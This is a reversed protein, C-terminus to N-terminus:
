KSAGPRTAAAPPPGSSRSATSRSRVKPSCSGQSPPSSPQLSRKTGTSNTGPGSTLSSVLSRPPGDSGSSPSDQGSGRSEDSSHQEPTAPAEGRDKSAGAYEEAPKQQVDENADQQATAEEDILGYWDSEDEEDVITEGTAMGPANSVRANAVKLLKERKQSAMDRINRLATVGQLFAERDSIMAYAKLQTMHYAEREGEARPATVHHAFIKLTGDHYTCSFSYANGDYVPEDKGYNQLSHMARAGHAGDICAQRRGVDIGGSPAKAELFFNPAIPACFHGTPIIRNKLDERVKKHIHSVFSGDFMDPVLDVTTGDTMTELNTFRLNVESPFDPKGLVDPLIRVMVSGKSIVRGNVKKFDKFASEPFQSLSLSPRRKSLGRVLCDFNKPESAESANNHKFSEPYIKCDVLKQEFDKDYASSRKYKIAPDSPDISQTRRTSASRMPSMEEDENPEPHGRLHSLDPGGDKAFLAIRNLKVTDVTTTATDLPRTANRRDLERLARPTLWVRSLTNWFRPPYNAKRTSSQFKARKAPLKEVALEGTNRRKLNQPKAMPPLLSSITSPPM